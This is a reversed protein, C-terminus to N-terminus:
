SKPKIFITVTDRAASGFVGIGGDIHNLSPQYDTGGRGIVQRQYDAWNTDISYFTVLNPGYYSFFQPRVLITPGTAVGSYRVREPVTTDTSNRGSQFRIRGANTDLATISLLYRQDAGGGPGATVLFVFSGLNNTDLIFTQGHVSDALGTLHIPMPVTTMSTASYVGGTQNNRATVSLFYTRGGQVVLDSAPLYYRGKLGTPLLTHAVGDVTITVQASDVAYDLDDYYDGFPTTRHLVISDIPENAYIFGDVVLQETYVTQIPNDCGSFVILIVTMALLFKLPSLWQFESSAIEQTFARSQKTARIERRDIRAGRLSTIFHRTKKM